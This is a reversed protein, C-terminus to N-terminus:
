RTALCDSGRGDGRRVRQGSRPPIAPRARDSFGLEGWVCTAWVGDVVELAKPKTLKRLLRDDLARATGFLTPNPFARLQTVVPLHASLPCSSWVLM